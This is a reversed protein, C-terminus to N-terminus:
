FPDKKPRKEALKSGVKALKGAYLFVLTRNVYTQSEQSEGPKVMRIVPLNDEESLDGYWVVCQKDDGLVPDYGRHM